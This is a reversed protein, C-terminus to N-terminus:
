SICLVIQKDGGIIVSTGQNNQNGLEINNSSLIVRTALEGIRRRYLYLIYDTSNNSNYGFVLGIEPALLGVGSNDGFSIKINELDGLFLSRLDGKNMKGQSGDALEVYFYDADTAPTFNNMKIDETKAM